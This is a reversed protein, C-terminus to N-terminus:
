PSGHRAHRPGPGRLAKRSGARAERRSRSGRTAARATSESTAGARIPEPPVPQRTSSRWCPRRQRHFLPTNHAHRQPNAARGRSGRSEYLIASPRTCSHPGHLAPYLSAPAASDRAPAQRGPSPSRTLTPGQLAELNGTSFSVRFPAVQIILCHSPPSLTRRRYAGTPSATM